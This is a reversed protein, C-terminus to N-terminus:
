ETAKAHVYAGKTTILERCEERWLYGQEKGKKTEMLKQWSDLWEALSIMGDDDGDMEMEKQIIQILLVCDVARSLWM